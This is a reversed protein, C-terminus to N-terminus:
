ITLKINNNNIYEKIKELFETQKFDTKSLMWEIYDPSDKIVDKVFKGKHKGFPFVLDENANNSSNYIDSNKMEIVISDDNILNTNIINEILINNNKFDFNLLEKRSAIYDASQLAYEILTVPLPYSKKGKIYESYHAWKGMHCLIADAIIQADDVSILHHFNKQMDMIYSSALEPHEHVTYRGVNDNGQKKIDHALAAIIILDKQHENFNFSEANCEAFFIVCRTHKVLGGVENAFYPHYKNSSSAPVTFFYEPANLILHCAFERLNDNKIDNLENKFLNLKERKKM